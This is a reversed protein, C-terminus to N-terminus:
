KNKYIYEYIHIYKPIPPTVRVLAFCMAVVFCMFGFLSLTQM